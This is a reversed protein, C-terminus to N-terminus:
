FSNILLEVFVVVDKETKVHDDLVHVASHQLISPLSGSGKFAFCFASQIKYSSENTHAEPITCSACERVTVCVFVCM